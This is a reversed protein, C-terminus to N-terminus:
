KDSTDLSQSLSLLVRKRQAIERIVLFGVPLAPSFILDISAESLVVVLLLSSSADTNQGASKSGASHGSARM